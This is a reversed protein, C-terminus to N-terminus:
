SILIRFFMKLLIRFFMQLLIRFLIKLFTFSILGFKVMKNERQGQDRLVFFSLLVGKVETAYFSRGQFNEEQTHIIVQDAKVTFFCLRSPPFYCSIKVAVRLKWGLVYTELRHGM